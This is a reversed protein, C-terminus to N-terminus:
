DVGQGILVVDTKSRDKWSYYYVVSPDKKFVVYVEYPLVGGKFYNYQVGIKKVDEMEHGEKAIKMSVASLLHERERVDGVIVNKEYYLYGASGLSFILLGIFVLRKWKRSM